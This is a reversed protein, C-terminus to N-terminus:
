LPTRPDKIYQVHGDLYVRNRGGAHITRGLLATPVTPITKPFYSDVALEVDSPGSILGITPDNAAQLDSVAKTVTKTWFDELMTPDTLVNTRDFRWLWYRCEPANTDTSIAQLSQVANGVPSNEAAPCSWIGDSAGQDRFVTAAWGGRPDSPPWSTWPHYGGPLSAKLDRRDPFTDQHDNLYMAFSIGIQKLNSLCDTRGALLKAHGLVPLLLGALISIIGIVVLLEILTFAAHVRVSRVAVPNNDWFGISGIDSTPRM